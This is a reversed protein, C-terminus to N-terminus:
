HHAIIWLKTLGAVVGIVALVWLYLRSNTNSAQTRGNPTPTNAAGRIRAYAGIAFCVLFVPFIAFFSIMAIKVTPNVVLLWAYWAWLLLFGIWPWDGAGIGLRGRARCIM